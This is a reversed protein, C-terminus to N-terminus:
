IEEKNLKIWKRTVEHIRPGFIKRKVSKDLMKPSHKGMTTAGMQPLQFFEITQEIRYTKLYCSPPCFIKFQFM